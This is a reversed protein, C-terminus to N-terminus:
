KGGDLASLENLWGRITGNALYGYLLGPNNTEARVAHLLMAFIRHEEDADSPAAECDYDPNEACFDEVADCFRFVVDWYEVRPVDNEVVWEGLKDPKLAPIFKTLKSFRSM